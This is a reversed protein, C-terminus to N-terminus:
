MKYYINRHTKMDQFPCTTLDNPISCFVDKEIFTLLYDNMWKDGIKYRLKKKVINM